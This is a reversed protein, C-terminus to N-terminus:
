KMGAVVKKKANIIQRGDQVIRPRVPQQPEDLEFDSCGNHCVSLIFLLSFQIFVQHLAKFNKLNTHHIWIQMM